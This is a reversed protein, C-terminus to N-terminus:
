VREKIIPDTLNAIRGLTNRSFVLVMADPRLEAVIAAADYAAAKCTYDFERGNVAMFWSLVDDYPYRRM